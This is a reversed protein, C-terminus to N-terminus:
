GLGIWGLWDSWALLFRGIGALCVTVPSPAHGTELISVAGISCPYALLNSLFFAPTLSRELADVQKRPQQRSPATMAARSYHGYRDATMQISAHGLRSLRHAPGDLSNPNIADGTECATAGARFGDGRALATARTPSPTQLARRRCASRARHSIATHARPARGPPKRYPRRSPQPGDDHRRLMISLATKMPDIETQSVIPVSTDRFTSITLNNRSTDQQTMPRM